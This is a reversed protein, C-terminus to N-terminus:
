IMSPYLHISMCVSLVHVCVRVCVCAYVCLMCREGRYLRAIQQISPHVYNQEYVALFDM